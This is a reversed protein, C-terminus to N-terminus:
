AKFVLLFPVGSITKIGTESGIGLEISLSVTEKGVMNIILSNKLLSKAEEKEVLKQGYYSESIHVNLEDQIIKKGLLEADCINLTSNKQYNSVRVSFQM